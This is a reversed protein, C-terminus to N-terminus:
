RRSSDVQARGDGAALVEVGLGGGSGSGGDGVLTASRSRTASRLEGTPRSDQSTGLSLAEATAARSRSAPSWSSWGTPSRCPTTPSGSTTAASCRSTSRRSSATRGTTASCSPSAAQPPAPGHDRRRPRARHRRRRRPRRHDVQVRRVMDEAVEAMQEMTARISEPVAVDPVRLRAIKAVHVSLDGMRELESVMRLAAVVMRLDGAVPQQLSLLEFANDEIQERVADIAQDASIVKDAIAADATLLAETARNVAIEVQGTMAVLDDFIADLQDHFADRM